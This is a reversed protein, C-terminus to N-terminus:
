PVLVGRLIRGAELDAYGQNVQDLSYTETVLEDIQLIGARYLDLLRPIAVRPSQSGYICGRIQKNMMALMTLNVDAQSQSLPAVSTIVCIGDKRTLTLAPELLESRMVSFTCIVSDCMVGGTLRRIQGIAEDLSAFAHTAGFRVAQERKFEVPDVAFIQRAGAIRAGQVASAGLGGIGLVAVTDGPRVEARNVASGFGTAVGCSVLAAAAWPIDQDIRVVSAENLLQYESFAGIQSYRAVAQDGLHHAVRGDSIMGLDFLRSGLDCLFARGSRCPQCHGCSPIFSMAVHDGPRVSTVGAGVEVVEGAGEHGCIMPYHPMPLDGTRAHEDSHCLGCARVAVLVEGARPDDLEVTDIKYDQGPGHLLAARTSVM